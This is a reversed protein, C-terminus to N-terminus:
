RSSGPAAASSSRRRASGPAVDEYSGGPGVVRYEDVFVINQPATADVSHYQGFKAYPGLAEPYQTVINKENVIEVGDKWITWYGTNDSAWRAHVVWDTWKNREFPVRSLTRRKGHPMKEANSTIWWETGKIRIALVPSPGGQQTHWQFMVADGKPARFDDPIFISLGYWYDQNMLVRKNRGDSFEARQGKSVHPDTVRLLVKAAYKGTRVPSTVIQLADPAGKQMSIQTLEGTEFDALSLLEAGPSPLSAGALALTVLLSRM